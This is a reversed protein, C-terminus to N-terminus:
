GEQNEGPEDPEDTRQQMAAQGFFASISRTGKAAEQLAKSVGTGDKQVATNEIERFPSAAWATPKWRGLVSEAFCAATATYRLAHPQTQTVASVAQMAKVVALVRIALSGPSCM